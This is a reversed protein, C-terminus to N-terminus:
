SAAAAEAEPRFENFRLYEWHRYLPSTRVLDAHKGVAEVRGKHLVVIQDLRRLTSLRMPLFIVTRNPLIRSYTDDLMAKTDDDLATTPEEVILVAPNRLIARTLGLRYSQGPDLQEGHEGLVTEYGQQLKLIFNHAHAQKAAATVDQLSFNASGCSINELVTGTFFPDTGGVYATEARLSELTVWAIDEGDFLVRGSQPEIFRPLLYCLARPELPELSIVATSTGAPIRLDVGDLLKRGHPLAYHVGEFQLLRSLPQLFRAGVAQGVEPIRDLYRYV